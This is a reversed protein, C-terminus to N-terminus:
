SLHSTDESTMSEESYHFWCSAPVGQWVSAAEIVEGTMAVSKELLQSGAEMHVGKQLRSRSRLTCDNEIKIKDLEFYGKTNLHCVVSACDIVSRDGMSVLDPESMFPDAGSPYLCCDRGIQSGMWRFFISMYPTGSFFDLLNLRSFKRVKAVTMYLEWRQAYSSEDYNYRGPKRKGMIAWKAFLEIIIWIAVRLLHTGFYMMLCTAYIIPFSYDAEDYNREGFSWGYLFGAAAQLAGLLPLTHFVVIITKVLLSFTVIFSLPWVFYTAKRLYFARGFPSLTSDDGTMQLQEPKVESAMLPGCLDVEVGKELCTPECGKSGFWVSREPLYWGAPCVSNSGLVAGKGIVSGPLVVSNDSVNSGACLVVKEISDATAFFISTRSGFVVDDGIELVDFEPSFIPQTGPWFVRKGVKAGLLRYLISVLEYHRGILDTVHQIRKRSLLSSALSHRLLEWQSSTNRPGATFKGIILRKIVIAAAMFFFPSLLARAIRIGFYYKIRAPDCLWAILQNINEFEGQEGKFKVMLFLVMIPPLQSFLHVSLMIPTGVFFQMCLSPEPLCKRNIRANKPDYSKGTDYSSTVPGLQANDPISTFPAVITKVGMSAYNGIKVPGLIMAGNDVGFGRFTGAELCSEQGVEVLDYEAIHCERSIRAGRAIKAGLMRYYASLFLDNSGWIGRLFLKRCIDVFWWRLYYSGWIPYRGPKYRGVVLWKIAVFILPVVTVWLIYFAVFALVFAGVDRDDNGSVKDLNLLLLGFFLLYRSVQWIPYIVLAPVLQFVAAVLSCHLPLRQTSFPAGHDSTNDKEDELRSKNQLGSQVIEVEENLAVVTAALGLGTFGDGRHNIVNALESPSAYQFVESGNFTLGFSRRIKSALQSALMSSGGLLFFNSDPGPMYDLDLIEAFLSQIKKVVPDVPGTSQDQLLFAVADNMAPPPLNEKSEALNELEVFHSPVAYRDLSHLALDIAKSREVGYLYCVVAGPRKPHAVVLVQQNGRPSMEKRLSEEVENASVCVNKVPIPVDLPTGQPPCEAEFTRELTSMKDSMKPIGLRTGLKVRLLKNTHSKPLGDMFVLCQPWKPTALRDGLYMHLSPLDLRPRQDKMVLVMGVVEQMVDHPASFAACAVVDPHSVVADEVEMPSIIEGGRNIVEKSRGTMFLYGDEDMMGLDGTNFWGGPLFDEGVKNTPDDALAGYGRFCPAGRVCVPGEVGPPLREVTATNLVAVEPGVAVGSTGPKELRYTAPPSSIPMCETM